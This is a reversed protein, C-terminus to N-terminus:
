IEAVNTLVFKIVNLVSEVRASLVPCNLRRVFRTAVGVSIEFKDALHFANNKNADCINIDARIETLCRFSELNGELAAAMLPTNSDRNPQKIAADVEVLIETTELLGLQASIHLPTCDDTNTLNVCM